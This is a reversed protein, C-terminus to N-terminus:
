TVMHPKLLSGALLVHHENHAKYCAALVRKTVEACCKIDHPGDFLIEPEVIPVLANEQCIIAYPWDM